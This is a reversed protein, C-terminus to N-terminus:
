ARAAKRRELELYVAYKVDDSMEPARNAWTLYDHPIDPWAKGKHKGLPCVPLYKPALTWAAMRSVTEMKLFRALIHATVYSDPGARHPPMALEEPLELGLEYRMAQNGHSPATPFLRGAAKVTCIWKADGILDPTIWKQEFDANAAVLFMPVNMTAIGRIDDVDCHPRNALMAPTLHHIAINDSTLRERPAYLVAQTKMIVSDKTETNFILDTWGIEIVSAPPEM